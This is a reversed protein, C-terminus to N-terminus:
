PALRYLTFQGATGVVTSGAPADGGEALLYQGGDPVVLHAIASYQAITLRPPVRMALQEGPRLTAQALRLAAIEDPPQNRLVFDRGAAFGGWLFLLLLLSVVVSWRRGVVSQYGLVSSRPDLILRTM